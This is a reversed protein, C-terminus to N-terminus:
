VLFIRLDAVVDISDLETHLHTSGTNQEIHLLEIFAEIVRQILIICEHAGCLVDIQTEARVTYLTADVVIELQDHDGGFLEGVFEWNRENISQLFM